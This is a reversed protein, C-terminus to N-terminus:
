CSASSDGLTLYNVKGTVVCAFAKCLLILGM